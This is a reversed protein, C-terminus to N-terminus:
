ERDTNFVIRPHAVQKPLIPIVSLDVVRLNNMGRVRFDIDVCAGYDDKSGM